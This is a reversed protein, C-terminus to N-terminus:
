IVLERALFIVYGRILTRVMMDAYVIDVVM